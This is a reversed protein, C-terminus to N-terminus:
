CVPTLKIVKEPGAQSVSKLVAFCDEDEEEDQPSAAPEAAQEGETSELQPMAEQPPNDKFYEVDKEITGRTQMCGQAFLNNRARLSKMRQALLGKKAKSFVDAGQNPRIQRWPSMKLEKYSARKEYFFSLERRPVDGEDYLVGSVLDGEEDEINEVRRVKAVSAAPTTKWKHFDKDSVFQYTRKMRVVVAKKQSAQELPFPRNLFFEEDNQKRIRTAESFEAARKSSAAVKDAQEDLLLGWDGELNTLDCDECWDDACVCV